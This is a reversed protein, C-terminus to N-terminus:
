SSRGSIGSSGASDSRGECPRCVRGAKGSGDARRIKSLANIGPLPDMTRSPSRLRLLKKMMWAAKAMALLSAKSETGKEGREDGLVAAAALKGPMGHVGGGPHTGAGSLYLGPVPTRYRAFGPAPRLTFLQDITMDLHNPNGARNGLRKEWDFPGTVKRRVVSATIGPAFHELTQFVADAAEENAGPWDNGDTFVAPVFASAWLTAKGAPCQSPDEASPIVVMLPLQAPIRGGTVIRMAAVYADPTHMLYKLSGAFEPPEGPFAPPRDLAADIKIEGVNFLGSHAGAMAKKWPATLLEEPLFEAVRKVDITSVVNDAEIKEGSELAVGAVRGSQVLIERVPSDCKVDAGSAALARLLAQILEGTGGLPRAGQVGHSSALLCALLGSGPAWPPMQPHSSFAAAAARMEPCRLWEDIVACSPALVTRILGEPDDGFEGLRDLIGTIGEIGVSKVHQLSGVASMLASSFAAFRGWETAEEDGFYRRFGEITNSLDRHFLATRDGIHAALLHDTRVWRLGHNELGLERDVGSHIIGELEIAGTNFRFGPFIEETFTCGGPVPARELVTVQHGASALFAACVLGNHGAGIILTRPM